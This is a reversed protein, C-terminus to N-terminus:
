RAHRGMLLYQSRPKGHLIERCLFIGVEGCSLADITVTAPAPLTRLWDGLLDTNLNLNQVEGSKVALRIASTAIEPRLEVRGGAKHFAFTPVDQVPLDALVEGAKGELTFTPSNSLICDRWRPYSGEQKDCVAENSKQKSRWSVTLAKDGIVCVLTGAGAKGIASILRKADSKSLLFTAFEGANAQKPKWGRLTVPYSVNALRRGDTAVFIISPEANKPWDLEVRVCDLVYRGSGTDTAFEVALLGARFTQADITFGIASGQEVEAVTPVECTSV